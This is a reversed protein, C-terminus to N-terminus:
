GLALRKGAGAGPRPTIMRWSDTGRRREGHIQLGEELPLAIVQDWCNVVAIGGGRESVHSGALRASGRGARRWRAQWTAHVSRAAFCAAVAATKFMSAAEREKGSRPSQHTTTTSCCRGTASPNGIHNMRSATWWGWLHHRNAARHCRQAPSGQRHIAKYRLKQAEAVADTLTKDTGYLNTYMDLELIRLGADGGSFAAPDARHAPVRDHHQHADPFRHRGAPVGAGPLGDIMALMFKLKADSAEMNYENYYLEAKPDARARRSPTRSM